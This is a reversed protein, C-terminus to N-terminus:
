HGALDLHAAAIGSRGSVIDKVVVLLFIPGEYDKQMEQLDLLFFRSVHDRITHQTGVTGLRIVGAGKVDPVIYYTEEWLRDGIDSSALGQIEFYLWLPESYYLQRGPYPVIRSGSRYIGGPLQSESVDSALLLSSLIPGTYESIDPVRVELLFGSSTDASPDLASLYYLHRGARAQLTFTDVVFPLRNGAPPAELVYGGIHQIREQSLFWEDLVLCSTHLCTVLRSGERTATIDPTAVGLALVVDASQGAQPFVAANAYLPFTQGAKESHLSYSRQRIMARIAEILEPGVRSDESVTLAELARSTQTEILGGGMPESLANRLIQLPEGVMVTRASGPGTAHIRVMAPVGYLFTAIRGETTLLAPPGHSLWLDGRWDWGTIGVPMPFDELLSAILGEPDLWLVPHPEPFGTGTMYAHRQRAIRLDAAFAEQSYEGEAARQLVFRPPEGFATLAALRRASADGGLYGMRGALVTLLEDWEPLLPELSRRPIALLRRAVAPTEYRVIDRLARLRHDKSMTDDELGTWAHALSPFRIRRHGGGRISVEYGYGVPVSSYLLVYAYPDNESGQLRVSEWPGRLLFAKWYEPLEALSTDAFRRALYDARQHLVEKAENEPTGPTPDLGEWFESIWADPDEANRLNRLSGTPLLVSLIPLDPRLHESLPRSSVFEYELDIRQAACGVFAPLAIALAVFLLFRGSLSKFIAGKKSLIAPM